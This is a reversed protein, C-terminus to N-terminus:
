RRTGSWTLRLYAPDSRHKGHYDGPDRTLPAGHRGHERDYAAISGEGRDDSRDETGPELTSTRNM